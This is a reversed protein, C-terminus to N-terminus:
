AALPAILFSFVIFYSRQGVKVSKFNQEQCCSGIDFVNIPFDIGTLNNRIKCDYCVLQM